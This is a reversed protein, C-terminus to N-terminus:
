TVRVAPVRRLAPSHLVRYERRDTAAISGWSPSLRGAPPGHRPRGIAGRLQRMLRHVVDASFGRGALFRSQAAREAADCPLSRFRRERVAAARALETQDLARALDAPVAVGHQALENRIRLNGFRAERAHV